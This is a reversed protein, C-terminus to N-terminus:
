LNALVFIEGLSVPSVIFTFVLFASALPARAIEKPARARPTETILGANASNYFPAGGVGTTSFSPIGPSSDDVVM